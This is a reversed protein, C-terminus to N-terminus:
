AVTAAAIADCLACIDIEDWITGETAVSPQSGHDIHQVDLEFDSDDLDHERIFNNLTMYAVIIKAQKEVYYSPLYLLIHWKMKLVGFSREIVNRLSSHAQNFVM